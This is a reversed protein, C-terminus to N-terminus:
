PEKAMEYLKDNIEKVMEISMDKTAKVLNPIMKQDIYELAKIQRKILFVNDIYMVVGVVLGVLVASMIAYVLYWGM